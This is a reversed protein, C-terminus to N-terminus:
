LSIWQGLPVSKRNPAARLRFGRSLNLEKCSDGPQTLRRPLEQDRKFFPLSELNGFLDFKYNLHQHELKTATKARLIESNIM